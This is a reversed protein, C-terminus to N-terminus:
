EARKLAEKLGRKIEAWGAGPSKNVTLWEGMLLVSKVGPIEFIARALPDAQAAEASRYSRADPPRAPLAPELHCKLANPNPTQEFRVIRHPM